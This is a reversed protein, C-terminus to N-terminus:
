ERRKGDPNEEDDEWRTPNAAIYARILNLTEDDRIIREYYNRQWVSAGPTGRIENIHKTVASKFSRIITPISGAIPKGFRESRPPGGSLPV